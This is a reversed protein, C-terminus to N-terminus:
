IGSPTKSNKKSTKTELSNVKTNCANHMPTNKAGNQVNVNSKYSLLLSVISESNIKECAIHLPTRGQRDQITIDTICKKM